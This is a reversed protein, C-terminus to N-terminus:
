EEKLETLSVYVPDDPLIEVSFSFQGSREPRAGGCVSRM